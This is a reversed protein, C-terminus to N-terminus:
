SQELGKFEQSYDSDYVDSKLTGPQCMTWIERPDQLIRSGLSAQKLM